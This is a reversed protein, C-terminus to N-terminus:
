HGPYRRRVARLSYEEEDIEKDNFNYTLINKKADYEMLIWKGNISARYKKIGSLKDTIKIQLYKSKSM